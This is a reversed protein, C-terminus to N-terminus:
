DSPPMKDDNESSLKFGIPLTFYTTVRDGLTGDNAVRRAPKWKPMAKVVRIAESDLSPHVSEAVFVSDVNGKKDIRFKVVVRGEIGQQRAQGPYKLVKQLYSSVSGRFEPYTERYTYITQGNANLSSDVPQAFAPGATCIFILALLLTRISNKVIDLIFV